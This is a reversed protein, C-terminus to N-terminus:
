SLINFLLKEIEAREFPKSLYYDCGSSLFFERDGTMAYATMAVVPIKQYEPIKRLERTTKLGDMGLGLNIDMLVCSYMSSKVKELCELGSAACDLRCIKSVMKQVVHHTMHDDDVLLVNPLEELSLHPSLRASDKAHEAQITASQPSVPTPLLVTFTSGQGPASEVHIEGGLKEVFRKTITLGLGSGEFSRGIGESVQRYEEFILQHYEEAIGIGSDTVQLKAYPIPESNPQLLVRSLTVHIFGDITYKIANNVLNDIIQTFM